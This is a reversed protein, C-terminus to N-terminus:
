EAKNTAPPLTTDAAAQEDATLDGRKIRQVNAILDPMASPTVTGGDDPLAALFDELVIPLEADGKFKPTKAKYYCGSHDIWAKM